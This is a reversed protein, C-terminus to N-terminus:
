AYAAAYLVEGREMIERMFFDNLALRQEVQEPTRVLLDLPM